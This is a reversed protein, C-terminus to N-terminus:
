KAEYEIVRTVIESDQSYVVGVGLADCKMLYEPPEHGNQKETLKEIVVDCNKFTQKWHILNREEKKPTLYGNTVIDNKIQYKDNGEFHLVKSDEVPIVEEKVPEGKIALLEQVTTKGYSPKQKQAGCSVFVTLALILFLRM